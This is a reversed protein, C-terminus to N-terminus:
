GQRLELIFGLNGNCSPFFWSVEGESLFSARNGQRTHLAIGQEWDFLCPAKIQNVSSFLTGWFDRVLRSSVATVVPIHFLETYGLHFQFSSWRGQMPKLAIDWEGDYLVIPMAEKPCRWLNGSVGM